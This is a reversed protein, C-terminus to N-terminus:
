LSDGYKDRFEQITIVNMLSNRNKIFFEWNMNSIDIKPFLKQKGKKILGCGFDTDVVQISLDENNMRFYSIGKWVTGTWSSVGDYHEVQESENNPLCDHCVIIGDENLFNLSNNIDKIVQECLHLGDIFIIDFNEKNKLFFDDSTEINTANSNPDPDVGIKKYCTIRNFNDNPNRVGIELYNKYNNNQILFNIIDTRFM